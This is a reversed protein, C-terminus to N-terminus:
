VSIIYKYYVLRTRIRFVVDESPEYLNEKAGESTAVPLRQEPNVSSRSSESALGDLRHRRGRRVNETWILRRDNSDEALKRGVQESRVQKIHAICWCNVPM